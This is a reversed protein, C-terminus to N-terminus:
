SDSFPTERTPSLPKRPCLRAGAFLTRACRCRPTFQVSFAIAQSSFFCQILAALVTETAVATHTTKKDHVVPATLSGAVPRHRCVRVLAVCRHQDTTRNQLLENRSAASVSLSAAQ